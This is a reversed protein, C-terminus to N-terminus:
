QVRVHTYPTPSGCLHCSWLLQSKESALCVADSRLISLLHVGCQTHPPQLNNKQPAPPGRSCWRCGGCLSDLLQLQMSTQDGAAGLVAVSFFPHSLCVLPFRFGHQSHLLLNFAPSLQHEARTASNHLGGALSKATTAPRLLTMAPQTNENQRLVMPPAPPAPVRKPQSSPRPPRRSQHLSAAWSKLYAGSRGAHLCCAHAM